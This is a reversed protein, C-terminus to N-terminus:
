LNIAERQRQRFEKPSVGLHSKVYKGFFSLNPFNLYESIEKISMESHKLLQSIEKIAFQNIWVNASKGSIKKCTTSLYKPTVHLRNAYWVVMRPKKQTDSLLTIFKKFLIDGQKLLHKGPTDTAPSVECLLEYVVAKLLSLIVEERYLRGAMKYRMDLIRGYYEFLTAIEENFEVIPKEGLAFSKEWLTNSLNFNEVIIRESLCLIKGQFDPSAIYKTATAQYPLYMMIQKPAIKHVRLNIEISLEGRTCIIISFPKNRINGNGYIRFLEEINDLIFVDEDIINLYNKM